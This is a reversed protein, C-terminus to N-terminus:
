KEREENVRWKISMGREEEREGCKFGVSPERERAGDGTERGRDRGLRKRRKREARM